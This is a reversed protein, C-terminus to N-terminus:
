DTKDIVFPSRVGLAFHEAVELAMKVKNEILTEKISIQSLLALAGLAFDAGCGISHFEDINEAVQFDGEVTFLRDKYGVLFCGGLESGDTDKQLYGGESFCKRVENIFDTCMYEYIDIGEKIIPPRFSFRLLQMMRFSATCGFLFDGNKFVKPDKRLNYSSGASAASDGGIVVRHSEKDKIGVICTM